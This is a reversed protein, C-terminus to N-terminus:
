HRRFDHVRLLFWLIQVAMLEEMAGSACCVQADIGTIHIYM